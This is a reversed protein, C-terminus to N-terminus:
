IPIEAITINAMLRINQLKIMKTFQNKLIGHYVNRGLGHKIKVDEITQTKKGTSVKMRTTANTGRKMRSRNKRDKKLHIRSQGSSKLISKMTKDKMVKCIMFM